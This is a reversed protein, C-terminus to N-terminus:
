KNNRQLRVSDSANMMNKELTEIMYLVRSRIKTYDMGMDTACVCFSFPHPKDSLMWEMAESRTTASRGDTLIKLTSMLLYERIHSVAEDSWKYTNKKAHNTPFPIVTAKDTFSLALLLQEEPKSRALNIIKAKM